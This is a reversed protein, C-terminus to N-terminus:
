FKSSFFLRRLGHRPAGTPGPSCRVPFHYSVRHPAEDTLSVNRKMNGQKLLGIVHNLIRFDLLLYSANNLQLPYVHSTFEQWSYLEPLFYLLFGYQSENRFPSFCVFLHVRFYADLPLARMIIM